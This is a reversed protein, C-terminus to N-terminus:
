IDSDRLQSNIVKICLFSHLGAWHDLFFHQASQSRQFDQFEVKPPLHSPGSQKWLPIRLSEQYTSPKPSLFGQDGTLGAPRTPQLSPMQPESPNQRQVDRLGPLNGVISKAQNKKVMNVIAQLNDKSLSGLIESTDSGCREPGKPRQPSKSQSRSPRRRVYHSGSSSSSPSRRRREPSRSRRREPSQSRRREPSRSRRREPSRSRHRQLGRSSSRSRHRTRRTRRSQSRSRSRRSPTPTSSRRRGTSSGETNKEDQTTTQTYFNWTSKFGMVVPQPPSEWESCPAPNKSRDRAESSRSFSSSRRQRKQLPPSAKRKEIPSTQKFLPQPSKSGEPPPARPRNEVPPLLEKLPNQLPPLVHGSLSPNIQQNSPFQNNAPPSWRRELHGFQDHPSQLRTPFQQDLFPHSHPPHHSDPLLPPVTEQFYLPQGMQVPSPIPEHGPLAFRYGSPPEMSDHHRVTMNKFLPQPALSSHGKSHSPPPGPLTKSTFSASFLPQPSKKKQCRDSRKSEITPITNRKESPKGNKRGIASTTNVLSSRKIPNIEIIEVEEGPVLKVSSFIFEATEDALINLNVCEPLTSSDLKGLTRLLELRFENKTKPVVSGGIKRESAERLSAEDLGAKKLVEMAALPFDETQGTKFAYFSFHAELLSQPKRKRQRSSRTIKKEESSPPDPLSSDPFEVPHIVKSNEQVPFSVNKFILEWRKSSELLWKIRQEKLVASGDIVPKADGQKPKTWANGRVARLRQVTEIVDKEPLHRIAAEWVSYDMEEASLYLLARVPFFGSPDKKAESTEYRSYNLTQKFAM